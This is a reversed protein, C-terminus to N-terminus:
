SQSSSCRRSSSSSWSFSVVCCSFSASSRARCESASRSWFAFSRTSAARSAVVRTSFSRRAFSRIIPFIFFCISSCLRWSSCMVGIVRREYEEPETTIGAIHQGNPVEWIEKPEGAAAPEEVVGECCKVLLAHHSLKRILGLHQHHTRPRHPRCNGGRQRDAPVLSWSKRPFPSCHAAAENVPPAAAMEDVEKAVQQLHENVEPKLLFHSRSRAEGAERIPRM